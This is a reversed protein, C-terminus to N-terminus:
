GRLAALFIGPLHRFSRDAELDVLRRFVVDSTRHTVFWPPKPSFHWEGHLLNRPFPYFPAQAVSKEPRGFMLSNHVVGIGSQIDDPTHGPYAGWSTQALLFGGGSWVNIGISGYRLDALAQEFAAGLQKITNPHVIINAGLTGWLSDNCFRVAERLFAEPTDGPLSTQALVEVFVETRYCTESAQSPDLGTILTRPVESSDLLEAQPHTEVAARQRGAAGPYFPKRSELGRYIERIASLLEPTRSWERSTVLVQAAVCNFGANHSKQTAIHEAQYRLDADSWPGPLVITPTVCGLEASVRKSNLREGRRKRAQGEEGPGFVIADHTKWSGTLHIEDIGSHEVLHAGQEAGGSVIRVFGGEILDSFIQELYPRVYDKVPHTKLLCVHGEVYLKYLMDLPAIADVNGAGLVLTVAGRPEPQKYFEAMSGQLNEATVGPQMWVEAKYGSLLLRDLFNAPYVEVALQGNPRTRVKGLPPAGEAEIARLTVMLANLGFMLAWPGSAWDEGMLASNGRVGKSRAAAAVWHPAATHTKQLMGELFARKKTVPLRAWEDKHRALDAVAADQAPRLAADLPRTDLNLAPAATRSATPVRSQKLGM